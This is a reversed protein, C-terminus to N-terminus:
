AERAGMRISRMEGDGGTDANTTSYSSATDPPSRKDETFRVVIVIKTQRSTGLLWIRTDAMPDEM